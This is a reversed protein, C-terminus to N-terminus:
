EYMMVDDFWVETDDINYLMLFDFGTLGSDKFEVDNAVMAGNVYFDFTSKQIGGVNNQVNNNWQIDRFEILYWRSISFNDYATDNVYMKGNNGFHFIIGFHGNGSISQSLNFYGTNGNNSMTAVYFSIESPALDDLHHFLGYRAYSAGGTLKLGFAGNRGAGAIIGREIYDTNNADHTQWYGANQCTNYVDGREFDYCFMQSQCDCETIIYKATSVSELMGSKFCVTKVTATEDIVLPNTYVTGNFNSSTPPSTNDNPGRTFKITAGSTTTSITVTQASHYTGAPPSFTPAATRTTPNQNEDPTEDNTTDGTGGGCSM